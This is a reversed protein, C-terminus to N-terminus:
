LLFAFFLPFIGQWHLIFQAFKCDASLLLFFYIRAKVEQLCLFLIWFNCSLWIKRLFYKCFQKATDSITRVKASALRSHGTRRLFVLREKFAIGYFKKYLLVLLVDFLIAISPE